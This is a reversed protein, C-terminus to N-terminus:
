GVRQASRELLYGVNEAIERQLALGPLNRHDIISFDAQRNPALLDYFLVNAGARIADQNGQPDAITSQPNESPQQATIRIKPMMLRLISIEKWMKLADGRGGEQALPTGAVPLYPICPAWSIDLKKMLLIDDALEDLTQHPYDVINGSALKLGLRKITEISHMRKEFTTSPNLREFTSKHSMEFKIVYEDVGAEQLQLFEDDSQEGAGLSIKMGSASITRVFRLINEFGYGPDEGSVLFVRSFGLAQAKLVTESVEEASMRYRRPLVHSARMGCYLCQNRCINGYGLMASVLLKKGNEAELAKVAEPKIALEWEDRPMQLIQLVESKTEIKM